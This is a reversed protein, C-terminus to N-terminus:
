ISPDMGTLHRIASVAPKLEGFAIRYCDANRVLDRLLPMARSGYRNLSMANRGLELAATGRTMSHLEVSALGAQFQPMVVWRVESPQSVSGARLDEPSVHWHGRPINPAPDKDLLDPFVASLVDPKLTIARPYPHVQRTVPDIAAAEDSLYGLGSLVLGTVLTSKGSGSSGPLILAGRSEVSVAGAHILFYDGTQRITETNVHWFFHDMVPGPADSGYIMHDGYLVRFRLQEADAMELISYVPPLGPTAPSREENPDRSVAFPKLVTHPYGEFADSDCRLSFYYSLVRYWRDEQGSLASSGSESKSVDCGWGAVLATNLPVSALELRDPDIVHM